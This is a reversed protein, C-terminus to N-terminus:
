LHPRPVLLAACEDGALAPCPAARGGRAPGGAAGGGGRGDVLAFAIRIPKLVAAEGGPLPFAAFHGLRRFSRRTAHLFEGGWVTGDSGYGTGDFAMGLCETLGHEAMVSLVHAHHHQVATKAAAPFTTAWRSSQYLPHPDYLVRRARDQLPRAAPAVQAQFDDCTRPIRSTAWTPLWTFTAASASPRRARSIAASPSFAGASTRRWACSSRSSGAPAASSASAGRGAAGGRPGACQLVPRLVSDDARHLIRRDNVLFLDVSGRLREIAEEPGTAMPEGRANGSTMVLADYPISRQPHAFLLLHLPSYPLM